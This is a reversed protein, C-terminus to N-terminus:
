KKNQEKIWIKWIEPTNGLAAEKGFRTIPTKFLLPDNLLETELDYVMYKLNRKQFQKGATDILQELPIKRSVSELEGPSLGKENLDIFQVKISREKFFRIAKNTDHCKKTGFIQITSSM